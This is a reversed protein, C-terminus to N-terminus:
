LYTHVYRLTRCLHRCTVRVRRQGNPVFIGESQAQIAQHDHACAYTGTDRPYRCCALLWVGDTRGLGSGRVFHAHMGQRKELNERCAPLHVVRGCLKMTIRSHGAICPSQARCLQWADVEHPVVAM